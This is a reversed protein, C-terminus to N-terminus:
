QVGVYQQSTEFAFAIEAPSDYAQSFQRVDDFYSDKILEDVHPRNFPNFQLMSRLLRIASDSGEPYMERLNAAPRARFKQLYKIAKEDTVFSIDDQNPTGIMNFILDLQDSKHSLPIGIEDIETNKNPSLPFCYKGPFLCRRNEFNPCNRELTNLLEGFIIGIAWIDVEKGYDKEMLILEPARYFRTAVHSTLQRNLEQRAQQTQILV